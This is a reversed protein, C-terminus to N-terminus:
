HYGKKVYESDTIITVDYTPYYKNVWKMAKLMATLEAKNNTMASDKSPLAGSSRFMENGEQDIVVFAWSGLPGPNPNCGGDTYITLKRM